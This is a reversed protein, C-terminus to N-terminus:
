YHFINNLFVSGWLMFGRYSFSWRQWPCTCFAIKWRMIHSWFFTQLHNFCEGIQWISWLIKNRKWCVVLSEWRFVSLDLSPPRQLLFLELSPPLLWSRARRRGGFKKLSGQGFFTSVSSITLERRLVLSLFLFRFPFKKSTKKSYNGHYQQGEGM